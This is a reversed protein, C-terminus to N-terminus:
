AAAPLDLDDVLWRPTPWNQLQEPTKSDRWKGAALLKPILEDVTPPLWLQPMRKELSQALTAYTGIDYFYRPDVGRLDPVRDEFTAFVAPEVPLEQLPRELIREVLGLRDELREWAEGASDYVPECVWVGVGPFIVLNLWRAALPQCGPSLWDGPNRRRYEDHTIPEEVYLQGVAVEQGITAVAMYHIMAIECVPDREVVHLDVDEGVHFTGDFFTRHNTPTENRM